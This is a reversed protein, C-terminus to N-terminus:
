RQNSEEYWGTVTEGMIIARRASANTVDKLSEMVKVKVGLKKSWEKARERLPKRRKEEKAQQERFRLNSGEEELIANSEDNMSRLGSYEAELESQERDLQDLQSILEVSALPNSNGLNELEGEIEIRENEIETIRAEIDEM